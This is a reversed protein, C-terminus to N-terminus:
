KLIETLKEEWEEAEALDMLIKQALEINRMEGNRFSVRNNRGFCQHVWFNRTKRMDELKAFDDESLRVKHKKQQYDKIKNLLKGFPDFEYDDLRDFWGRDENAMLDACIFRLRMEILQYFEILKSHTVRFETEKM